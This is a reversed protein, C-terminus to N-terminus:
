KRSCAKVTSKGWKFTRFPDTAIVRTRVGDIVAPVAVSKGQEVFVVVASEGPSDSSAGVGVGIIAPNAMLDEAHLKASRGRAIEADELPAALQAQRAEIQLSSTSEPSQVIRTRVGDVQAPIPLRARNRLTVVVAAENPNDDSQGVEVSEIAPDQMLEFMRHNRAITARSIESQALARHTQPGSVGGQAQSGAPCAVPRDPGGVVQPAVGNGDKLANYVDQIPNGVTGTNSGAYLLAVPRSNSSDVILSGSDGSNSFNVGAIAVQNNFTVDFNTGGQCSTSYTVRILANTATVTSCTLGTADGSKAVGQNVAPVGTIASPQAPQGPAALDLITGSTDVQGSVIQAIAADVNSTKLPAAQSMNAVTRIAANGCNSDALGPQSIPDGVAGQDSKDLVHNNSLIYFTGARSVLSGLTGSCCFISNGSRTTDTSNGGSTGLKIPGSQADQNDHHVRIEATATGSKSTDAQSVAKITVSSPSPAVAPATYLGSASITGVTSNGGTVDNASWLVSTNSTGTVTATYLQTGGPALTSSSPSVTVTVNSAGSGLTSGSNSVGRGGCSILVFSCSFLLAKFWSASKLEM